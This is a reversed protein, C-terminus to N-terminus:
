EDLKHGDNEGGSMINVLDSQSLIRTNKVRDSTQSRYFSDLTTNELNTPDAVKCESMLEHALSQWKEKLLDESNSTSDIRSFVAQETKNKALKEKMLLRWKILEKTYKKDSLALQRGLQWAASYSIDVMSLDPDYRLLSDSYNCTINKVENPEYPVLCSKYWSITQTKDRMTHNMAFYGLNILDNIEKNKSKIEPKFLGVKLRHADDYFSQQNKITYFDWSMLSFMRVSKKNKVSQKGRNELFANYGELSVLHATHRITQSKKVKPFRSSMVCSFWENNVDRDTVKDDLAVVKIHSLYALEDKYPLIENFLNYDIDLTVCDQDAEIYEDDMEPIFVDVNEQTANKYTTTTTVFSEDESFVLLCVWPIKPENVFLPRAWPLNKHNLILVPLSNEYDAISGRPPYTSYTNQPNLSLQEAQVVFDFEADEITCNSINTTQSVKVTYKGAKLNPIQNSLFNIYEDMM